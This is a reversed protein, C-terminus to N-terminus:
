YNSKVQQISTNSEKHSAWVVSRAVLSWMYEWYPYNLGTEWPNDIRPLLGKEPYAMAVVRGKGYQKVALVPNGNLTKLLIEGKNNTYKLAGMHGWPFAEFTVGRTIYHPKTTSWETMDLNEPWTFMERDKILTQAKAAKLSKLPSIDWLGANDKDSMPYLLVLGTGQSVRELIADRVHKSFSEWKHMGPWIIVDIEPNFLLNEAIYNHALNFTTSDKPHGPSRRMYFDGFGYKEAGPARGITTVNMDLDLRQALEVIGRGDFVPSISYSKITGNVFNKAWPYHPTEIETSYEVGWHGLKKLVPQFQDFALYDIYLIPDSDTKIGISKIKKLGFDTVETLPLQIHNAGKKLSFSKSFTKNLTDKLVLDIKSIHNTWIFCLLVDNKNSEQIRM